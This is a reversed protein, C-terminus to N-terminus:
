LIGYRPFEISLYSILHWIFLIHPSLSFSTVKVSTAFMASISKFYMSKPSWYLRAVLMCVLFVHKSGEHLYHVNHCSYAKCSKIWVQTKLMRHTRMLQPSCIRGVRKGFTHLILHIGNSPNAIFNSSFTSFTTGPYSFENNYKDEALRKLISYSATPFSHQSIGPARAALVLLGILFNNFNHNIAWKLVYYLQLSSMKGTTKPKLRVYKTYCILANSNVCHPYCKKTSSIWQSMCCCKNTHQSSHCYNDSLKKSEKKKKGPIGATVPHSQLCTTSIKSDTAMLLAICHRQVFTDDTVKMIKAM